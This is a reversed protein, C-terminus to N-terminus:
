PSPSNPWDLKGKVSDPSGEGFRPQASDPSVETVDTWGGWYVEAKGWGVEAKVWGVQAIHM